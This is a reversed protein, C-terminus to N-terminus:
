AVHPVAEGFLDPQALEVPLSAQVAAVGDVWGQVLPLLEGNLWDRRAPTQQTIWDRLHGVIDRGPGAEELVSRVHARLREALDRATEANVADRVRDILWRCETATLTEDHGTLDARNLKARVLTSIHGGAAVRAQAAAVNEDANDVTLPWPAPELNSGLDTGLRATM